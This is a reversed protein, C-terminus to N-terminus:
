ELDENSKLFTLTMSQIKTSEGTIVGNALIFDDNIGDSWGDAMVITYVNDKAGNLIDNYLDKCVTNKAVPVVLELTATSMQNTSKTENENTPTGTQQTRASVCTFRLVNIDYTNIKWTAENAILGLITQQIEIAVSLPLMSGIDCTNFATGTTPAGPTVVYTTEEADDLFKYIVGLQKKTWSELIIKVEEVHEQAVAIDLRLNNFKSSVEKVPTYDGTSELLVANITDEEQKKFNEQFEGLDAHIKFKLKFALSNKDGNLQEQIMERIFELTM